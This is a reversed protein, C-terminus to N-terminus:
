MYRRINKLQLVYRMICLNYGLLIYVPQYDFIEFTEGARKNIICLFFGDCFALILFEM